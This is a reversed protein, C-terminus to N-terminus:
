KQSILSSEMAETPNPTLPPYVDDVPEDVKGKEDTVDGEPLPSPTRSSPHPNSSPPHPHSERRRRFSVPSGSFSSASSPVRNRRRKLLSAQTSHFSLLSMVESVREEYAKNSEYGLSERPSDVGDSHMMSYAKSGACKVQKNGVGSVEGSCFYAHPSTDFVKAASRWMTQDWKTNFPCGILRPSPEAESLRRRPSPSGWAGASYRRGPRLRGRPPPTLSETDLPELPALSTRRTSATPTSARGPLSPM